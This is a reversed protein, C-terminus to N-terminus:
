NLSAQNPVVYQVPESARLSTLTSAGTRTRTRTPSRSLTAASPLLMSRRPYVQERVPTVDNLARTPPPRNIHPNTASSPLGAPNRPFRDPVNPLAPPPSFVQETATRTALPPHVQGRTPVLQLDRLRM